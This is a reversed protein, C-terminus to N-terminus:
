YRENRSKNVKNTRKTNKRNNGNIKGGWSIFEKTVPHRNVKYRTLRRLYSTTNFQTLYPAESTIPNICVGNSDFQKVYPKNQM